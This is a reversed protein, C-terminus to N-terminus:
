RIFCFWITGTSSSFFVLTRYMNEADNKAETTFIMRAYSYISFLMFTTIEMEDGLGEAEELWKNHEVSCVYKCMCVCLYVIVSLFFFMWVYMLQTFLASVHHCIATLCLLHTWQQTTQQRFWGFFFSFVFDTGVCVTQGRPHFFWILIVADTWM